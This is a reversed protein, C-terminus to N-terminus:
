QGELDLEPLEGPIQGYWPNPVALQSAVISSSTLTRGNNREVTTTVRVVVDYDDTQTYSRMGDFTLPVEIADRGFSSGGDRASAVGTFSASPSGVKRVICFGTGTYRLVVTYPVGPEVEAGMAFLDIPVELTPAKIRLKPDRTYNFEVITNSPTKNGKGKKVKKSKKSTKGKGLKTPVKKGPSKKGVKKSQKGKTYAHTTVEDEDFYEVGDWDYEALPLSAADLTTTGILSGYPRGDDQGRAEYLSIEIDGAAAAEYCTPALHDDGHALHATAAKSKLALQIGHRPNGPPHHCVLVQGEALEDDGEGDGMGGMGGSKASKKSKSKGKDAKTKVKKSKARKTHVPLDPFTPLHAIPIVIRDISASVLQETVGEVPAVDPPAVESVTFGLALADDQLVLGPVEVNSFYPSEARKVYPSGEIDILVDEGDGSIAEDYYTGYSELPDGERLRQVTGVDFTVSKVDDLLVGVDGDAQEIILNGDSLKYTTLEGLADSVTLESSSASEVLWGTRVADSITGLSEEVETDFEQAVSDVQSGFMVTLHALSIVLVAGLSVSLLVEVLTFGRSSAPVTALPRSARHCNV